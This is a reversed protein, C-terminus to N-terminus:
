SSRRLTELIKVVRTFEQRDRSEWIALAQQLTARDIKAAAPSRWVLAELDQESPQSGGRGLRQGLAQRTARLLTTECGINWLFNGSARIHEALQRRHKTSSERLPGFRRTFLALSALILAILSVMVPHTRESLLSWVSSGPDRYLLWLGTPEEEPIAAFWAILAHDLSGIAQSHLFTGDALVTASGEGVEVTLLWSADPAGESRLVSTGEHPYLRPWAPRESAYDPQSQDDDEDADEAGFREVGLAQLLPDEGRPGAPIVVLHGGEAAWSVLRSAQTGRSPAAVWLVHDRPPLRRLRSLSRVPIDACRFLEGLAFYPHLAAEGSYGRDVVEEVRELLTWALAILVCAVVVGALMKWRRRSM